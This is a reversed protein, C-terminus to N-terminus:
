GSSELGPRVIWQEPEVFVEGKMAERLKSQHMRKPLGDSLNQTSRIFRIDSIDYNKFGERECAIDLM